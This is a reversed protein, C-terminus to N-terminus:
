EYQWNTGNYSVFSQVVTTGGAAVAGHWTPAALATTDSVYAVWGKAPTLALLQTITYPALQLDALPAPGPSESIYLLLNLWFSRWSSVM